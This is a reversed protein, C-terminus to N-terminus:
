RSVFELGLIILFIFFVVGSMKLFTLKNPLFTSSLWFQVRDLFSQGIGIEYVLDFVATSIVTSIPFLSLTVSRTFLTLPDLFWFLQSSFVAGVFLFILIYYKLSFLKKFSRGIRNKSFYSVADLTTGLPCIWGCFFRGMPITLVLFVFALAVTDIFARTSIMSFIAVLPDIRLFIEVPFKTELPYSAILFLYIFFLLFILQSIRRTTKM